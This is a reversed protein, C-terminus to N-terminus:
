SHKSQPVAHIGDIRLFRTENCSFMACQGNYEWCDACHPTKCRVCTVADTEISASCIPCLVDSMSVVEDQELFELDNNLALRFQDFLELGFRLFDDLLMEHKLFGPKRIKLNGNSLFIEIGTEGGHNILQRIQRITTPNILEQAVEPQNCYIYVDGLDNSDVEVPKLRWTTLMGTPEGISSVFFKLRREPWKVKLQTVRYHARGGTNSLVVASDNYSFSMRPRYHAYSVTGGYRKAIKQYSKAWAGIRVAFGRFLMGLAALVIVCTALMTLFPVAIVM